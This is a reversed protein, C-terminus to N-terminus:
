SFGPPFNDINPGVIGFYQVQVMMLQPDIRQIGITQEQTGIYINYPVAMDLTIAYVETVPINNMRLWSQGRDYSTYIGGDTGLLLRDPNLPDIWLEHHDLHLVESNHPRINVIKGQIRKFTKGGDFSQLLYNGLIYIQDEDNPSVRILCFDYGIATQLYDKNTKRWTEGKDDSRFVEGGVPRKSDARPDHNYVLAYIVGPNSHSIALGIRGINDGKPLGGKLLKWNRGANSSKYIGSNIGTDVHNWAKRDREWMVAYLTRHDAPDMVVEICGVRDSIYLIKEWTKGGNTTKFLGREPNYTYNHGVAAVYVINQDQPDILVRAIHYTDNLGMNKWTNGGDTSKFVGTGAFSSRAMLVEGTGVWVVDPASPSVAVSGVAFTSEHEFIPKWTTGNNISKWLNGSGAGVYITGTNGPPCTITEVRGGAFAPGVARWKLKNFPSNVRLREHFEWSKMREQSSLSNVMSNTLTLCLNLILFIKMYRKM